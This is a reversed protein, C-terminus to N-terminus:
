TNSGGLGVMQPQLFLWATGVEGRQTGRHLPCWVGGCWCLDMPFPHLIRATQPVNRARLPVGGAAQLVRHNIEAELCRRAPSAASRPDPGNRPSALQQNLPPSEGHPHKHGPFLWACAWGWGWLRPAGRGGLGAGERRGVAASQKM